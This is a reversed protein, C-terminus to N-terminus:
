LLIFNNEKIESINRKQKMIIILLIMLIIKYDYFQFLNSNTRTVLGFVCKKKKLNEGFQKARFFIECM